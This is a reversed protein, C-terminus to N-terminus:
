RKKDDLRTQMTHAVRKLAERLAKEEFQDAAQSVKAPAGEPIDLFHQRISPSRDPTVRAPLVHWAVGTATLNLKAVEALLANESFRLRSLWSANTLTIHLKDNEVRCLALADLAAAPMVNAFAARLKQNLRLTQRASPGLLMNLDKM